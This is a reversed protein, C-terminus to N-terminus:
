AASKKQRAAPGSVSKQKKQITCMIEKSHNNIGRQGRNDTHTGPRRTRPLYSSAAASYWPPLLQATNKKTKSPTHGLVKPEKATSFEKVNMITGMRSWTQSQANACRYASAIHNTRYTRKQQRTSVERTPRCVNVQALTQPSSPPLKPTTRTRQTRFLVWAWRSKHVRTIQLTSFRTSDARRIPKGRCQTPALRIERSSPHASPTPQV